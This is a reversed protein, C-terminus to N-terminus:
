YELKGEYVMESVKFRAELKVNKSLQSVFRVQGSDANIFPASNLQRPFVFKAGLGDPAPAKFDSLMVRQGDKRELFTVDKLSDLSASRFAQLAAGGTSKDKAEAAVAIVIFDDSTLDTFSKLQDAQKQFVEPQELQVRRVVAQRIPKASLFRIFYKIYSTIAGPADQGPDRVEMRRSSGTYTVAGAAEAAEKTELQTQAWASDTLVRTIEKANWETWTKQKQAYVLATAMVVFVSLFITQRM